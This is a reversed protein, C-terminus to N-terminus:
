WHRLAPFEREANHTVTRLDAAVGQLKAAVAIREVDIDRDIDPHREPRDRQYAVAVAVLLRPLGVPQDPEIRVRIAVALEERM